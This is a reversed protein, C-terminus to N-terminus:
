KKIKPSEIILHDYAGISLVKSSAEFNNGLTMRGQSDIKECRLILKSLKYIEKKYFLKVDQSKAKELSTILKKYIEEIVKSNYIEYVDLDENYLLILEGGKERGTNVPLSIRGKSDITLEIQGLMKNEGFM